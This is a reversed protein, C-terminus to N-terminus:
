PLSLYMGATQGYPVHEIRWPAGTTERTCLLADGYAIRVMLTAHPDCGTMWQLLARITGSHIILVTTKGMWRHLWHTVWDTVRACVDAFCEGQPFRVTAPSAVWERATTPYRAEVERFTLGELAGFHIERLAAYPQGKLSWLDEFYRASEITRSLDSTALAAPAIQRLKAACQRMQEHGESHLAVDRWGYCRQEPNDTRGHRILWLATQM